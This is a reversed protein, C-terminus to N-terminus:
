FFLLHDLLFESLCHTGGGGVGCKQERLRQRGNERLPELRVFDALQDFVVIGEVGVARRQKDAVELGRLFFQELGHTGVGSHHLARKVILNLTRQQQHNQQKQKRKM